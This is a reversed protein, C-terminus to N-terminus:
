GHYQHLQGLYSLGRVNSIMLKNSVYCRCHRKGFIFAIRHTQLRASMNELDTLSVIILPASYGMGWITNTIEFM